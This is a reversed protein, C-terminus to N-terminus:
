EDDRESDAMVNLKNFLRGYPDRLLRQALVPINGINDFEDRGKFGTENMLRYLISRMWLKEEFEQPSGYYCLLAYTLANLALSAHMNEVAGRVGDTKYLNYLRTPLEILIKDGSVDFFVNNRGDSKIIQMYSKTTRLQDYRIDTDYYCQPFAALIDGPELNFTCGHYDPHFGRNTYGLIPQKVSIFCNFHIRGYIDCCPVVFSFQPKDSKVCRRLMTRPCEYECSFEAKGQEILVRIDRNNYTLTVNFIFNRGDSQHKMDICDSALGPEIDDNLGLVPYPLSINDLKM